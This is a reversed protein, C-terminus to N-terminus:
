GLEKNYLKLTDELQMVLRKQIYEPELVKVASGFSLIYTFVWEDDPFLAQVCITGDPNKIIAKTEFDDYVRNLAQPKFLLKVPIPKKTIKFFDQEIENNIAKRVFSRSLVEVNKIRSIRFIRFDNKFLCYGKLYWGFGKFFLQMPEIDRRSREGDNNVYDFCIVKHEIIARKIEKFKNDEHPNSGWPNFDIQVWDIAEKHKFVAGLKDLINEIDPYNTAQLTKLALLIGDIEQASMLTKNLTFNELLSIGGGKGKNTYVPVGSSSLVELDRYITRTSVQFREALEKATIYNKNMLLITIELLRNLKM